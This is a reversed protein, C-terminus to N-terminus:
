DGTPEPCEYKPIFTVVQMRQVHLHCEIAMQALVAQTRQVHLRCEIAM